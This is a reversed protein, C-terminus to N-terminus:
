IDPFLRFYLFYLLIFYKIHMPENTQMEFFIRIMAGQFLFFHVLQKCGYQIMMVMGTSASFTHLFLL